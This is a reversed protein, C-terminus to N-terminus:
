STEHLVLKPVHDDFNRM